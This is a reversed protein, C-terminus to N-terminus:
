REVVYRVAATSAANSSNLTFGSATKATVWFTENASPELTVTYDTVDTGLSPFTPSLTGAATAATAFTITGTQFNSGIEQTVYNSHTPSPSGSTSRYGWSNIRSGSVAISKIIKLGGSSAAEIVIDKRNTGGSGAIDRITTGILRLTGQTATTNVAGVRIGCFTRAQTLTGSEYEILCGDFTALWDAAAAFITRFDICASDNTASNIDGASYDLYFRVGVAHITAAAHSRIVAGATSTSTGSTHRRVYQGGIIKIRSAGISFVDPGGITTGLYGNCGLLLIDAKDLYIADSAATVANPVIFACACFVSIQDETPTPLTSNEMELGTRTSELRVNWCQLGVSDNAALAAPTGTTGSHQLTLDQLRCQNSGSLDLVPNVTNTGSTTIYSGTTSLQVITKGIGAGVFSTYQSSTANITDSIVYLGPLLRIIYPSAASANAKAVNIAETLYPQSFGSVVLETSGVPSGQNVSAGGSM